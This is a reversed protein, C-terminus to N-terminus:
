PVHEESHEPCTFAVSSGQCEQRALSFTKRKTVSNQKQFVLDKRFFTCGNVTFNRSFFFLFFLPIFFLSFFFSTVESLHESCHEANELWLVARSTVEM